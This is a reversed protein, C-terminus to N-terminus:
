GRSREPALRSEIRERVLDGIVTPTRELLEEFYGLVLM